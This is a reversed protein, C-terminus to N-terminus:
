AEAEEVTVGYAAQAAAKGRPWDRSKWKSPKADVLRVVRWREGDLAWVVLDIRICWPKRTVVPCLNPLPLRLDLMLREGPRLESKVRVYVRAQTQSPFTIGDVKTPTARWVTARKEGSAPAPSGALEPHQARVLEAMGAPMSAVDDYRM